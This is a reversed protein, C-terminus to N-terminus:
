AVAYPILPPLFGPLSGALLPPIQEGLTAVLSSGLSLGRFLLCEFGM